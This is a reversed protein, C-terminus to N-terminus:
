VSEWSGDGSDDDLEYGWGVEEYHELIQQRTNAGIFKDVEPLDDEEIHSVDARGSPYANYKTRNGTDDRNVKIVMGVFEDLNNNEELDEIFNELYGAVEVGFEWVKIGDDVLVPMIWRQTTPIPEEQECGPCGNTDIINGNQERDALCRHSVVPRGNSWVQHKFMGVIHPSDPPVIMVVDTKSNRPLRLFEFNNGRNSKQRIASIGTKIGTTM